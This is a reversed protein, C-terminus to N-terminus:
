CIWSAPDSKGAYAITRMAHYDDDYHQLYISSVPMVERLFLLLQQLAEDIELNGCIRLTAERFLKNANM